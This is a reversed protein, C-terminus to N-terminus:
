GIRVEEGLLRSSMALLFNEMARPVWTTFLFFWRSGALKMVEEPRYRVMNSLHHMVLFAVAEQSLLDSRESLIVLHRAGTTGRNTHILSREFAAIVEPACRAYSVRGPRTRYSWRERSEYLSRYPDDSAVQHFVAGFHAARRHLQSGAVARRRLEGGAVELRLWAESDRGMVRLSQVPLLKPATGVADELIDAAEVLYPILKHIALDKGSSHCFGTGTREALEAFVNTRVGTPSGVKATEQQFWYRSKREFADGLGHLAKRSTLTPDVCTLFAKTLNLFFYYAVLPRSEPAMTEASLYFTESQTLYSVFRRFAADDM